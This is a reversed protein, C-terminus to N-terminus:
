TVPIEALFRCPLVPEVRCPHDLASEALAHFERRTMAARVSAAADRHVIPSRSLAHAAISVLMLNLRSRALDCILLRRVEGGNETADRMIRLLQVVDDDQLHHMFLSCVVVDFHDPLLDELADAVIWQAELGQDSASQAAQAIAVPSVDVGTLELPFGDRRAHHLWTRPLDGSGTAIDLVRLPRPSLAALRRIRRYLIDAVRTWQNLRALGRLAQAHLAPDLEPDDMIEPEIVRKRM